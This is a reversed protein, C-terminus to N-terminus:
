HRIQGQLILTPKTGLKSRSDNFPEQARSCAHFCTRRYFTYEHHRESPFSRPTLYPPFPPCCFLPLHCLPPPISVFGAFYARRQTSPTGAQCRGGGEYSNAPM